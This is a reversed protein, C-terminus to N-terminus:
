GIKEVVEGQDKHVGTEVGCGDAAEEDVVGRPGQRDRAIRLLCLARFAEPEALRVARQGVSVVAAMGDGCVRILGESELDCSGWPNQRESPIV